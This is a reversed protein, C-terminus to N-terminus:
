LLNNSLASKSRKALRLSRRELAILVWNGFIVLLFILISLAIVISISATIRFWQEKTCCLQNIGPTLVSTTTDAMSPTDTPTATPISIECCEPAALIDWYTSDFRSSPCPTTVGTPQYLHLAQSQSFDFIAINSSGPPHELICWYYGFDSTGTSSITLRREYGHIGSLETPVWRPLTSPTYYHETASYKSPSATINIWISPVMEVNPSWYFEVSPRTANGQTEYM